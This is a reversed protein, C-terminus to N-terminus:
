PQGTSFAHLTLVDGARLQSRRAVGAALEVTISARWAAAIRWAPLHEVIKVVRGADSVFLVDIPFRM